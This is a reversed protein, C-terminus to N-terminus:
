SFININHEKFYRDRIIIAIIRMYSQLIDGNKYADMKLINIDEEQLFREPFIM